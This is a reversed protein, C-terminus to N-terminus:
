KNKERNFSDEIAKALLACFEAEIDCDYNYGDYNIALFSYKELYNLFKDYNFNDVKNIVRRILPFIIVVFSCSVTNEDDPACNFNYKKQIKVVRENEHLLDHAMNDFAVAIKEKVIDDDILDLFGITEWRNVAENIVAKGVEWQSLEEYRLSTGYYTKIKNFLEEM